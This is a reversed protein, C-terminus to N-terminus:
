RFYLRFAKLGSRIDSAQKGRECQILVSDAVNQICCRLFESLLCPILTYYDRDRKGTSRELLESYFFRRNDRFRQLRCTEFGECVRSDPDIVGRGCDSELRSKIAEMRYNPRSSTNKINIWHRVLCLNVSSRVETIEGLDSRARWSPNAARDAFSACEFITPATGCFTGGGARSGSCGLGKATCRIGKPYIPEGNCRVRVIDIGNIVAMEGRRTEVLSGVSDGQGDISDILDITNFM